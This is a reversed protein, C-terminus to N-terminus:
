PMRICSVFGFVEYISVFLIIRWQRNVGHRVVIYVISLAGLFCGLINAPMEPIIKVYKLTEILGYSVIVSNAFISSKKKVDM